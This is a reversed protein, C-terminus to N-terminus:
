LAKLYYIYLISRARSSLYALEETEKKAAEWSARFVEVPAPMM